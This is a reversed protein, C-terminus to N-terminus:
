KKLWDLWELLKEEGVITIKGPTEANIENAKKLKSGAKEGAILIDTKKSVSGTPKAGLRALMKKAEERKVSSFSGTIVTVKGELEPHIKIQEKTKDELVNVVGRRALDLFKKTNPSDIYKKLADFTAPGVGELNIISGDKVAEVFRDLTKYEAAIDRSLSAGVGPIQLGSIARALPLGKKKKEIEALLNKINKGGKKFDGLGQEAIKNLQEETITWLDATGHYWDQAAIAEAAVTGLGEIDLHKRSVAAILRGEARSKCDENQCYLIVEMREDSKKNRLLNLYKDFDQCIEDFSMKRENDPIPREPNNFDVKGGCCPCTKPIEFKPGNGPTDVGKFFPIVDGSRCIKITDGIKAGSLMLQTINHCTARTVTAGGLEVPELEFVPTIRGDKGTFLKIDKIKTLGIEPPFKCAVDARPSHSTYGLREKKKLDNIKIVMGDVDYPLDNRHKLRNEYEELIESPKAKIIGGDYNVGMSEIWKMREIYSTDDEIEGQLGYAKFTLVAEGKKLKDNKGDMLKFMSTATNRCNKYEKEGRKRMIENLRELDGKLMVVEGTIQLKGKFDIQQPIGNFYKANHTINEGVKGDGRSAVTEIVGNNYCIEVGAGDHKYELVFEEWKHDPHKEEIKRAIEVASMGQKRLEEVDVDLGNMKFLFELQEYEDMCNSLSYMPYAHRVENIIVEKGVNWLRNNEFERLEEHSDILHKTFNYLADYTEDAIVTWARRMDETGYVEDLHRPLEEKKDCGGGSKGKKLEAERIAAEFEEHTSCLEDLTNRYVTESWNLRQIMAKVFTRLNERITQFIEPEGTNFGEVLDAKDYGEIDVLENVAVVLAAPDVDIGIKMEEVAKNNKVADRKLTLKNDQIKDLDM